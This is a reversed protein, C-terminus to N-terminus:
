RPDDKKLSLILELAKFLLKPGYKPIARICGLGSLGLIFAIGAYLQDNAIPWYLNVFPTGTIAVLLGGGIQLFGPALKRTPKLAFACLGGCLGFVAVDARINEALESLNM